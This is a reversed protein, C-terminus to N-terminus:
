EGRAKMIVNHANQVQDLINQIRKQAEEEGYLKPLIQKYQRVAHYSMVYLDELAALLEEAIKEPDIYDWEYDCQECVNVHYDSGFAEGIEENKCKPCISNM